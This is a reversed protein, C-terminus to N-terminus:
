PAQRLGHCPRKLLRGAGLSQQLDPGAGAGESAANERRKGFTVLQVDDLEVRAEAPPQFGIQDGGKPSVVRPDADMQMAPRNLRNCEVTVEVEDNAAEREVVERGRDDARDKPAQEVQQRLTALERIELIRANPVQCRGQGAWPLPPAQPAQSRDALNQVAAVGAAAFENKGVERRRIGHM